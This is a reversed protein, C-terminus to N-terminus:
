PKKTKPNKFEHRNLETVAASESNGECDSNNKDRTQVCQYVSVSIIWICVLPGRQLKTRQGNRVVKGGYMPVAGQVSSMRDVLGLGSRKVHSDDGCRTLTPQVM